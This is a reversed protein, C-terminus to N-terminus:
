YYTLNRESAKLPRLTTLMLLWTPRRDIQDFFHSIPWTKKEVGVFLSLLAIVSGLHQVRISLSLEAMPTSLEAM